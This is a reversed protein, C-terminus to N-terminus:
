KGVGRFEGGASLYKEAAATATFCHTDLDPVGTWANWLIVAADNELLKM